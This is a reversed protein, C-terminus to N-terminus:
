IVKSILIYKMKIKGDTSNTSSLVNEEGITGITFCVEGFTSDSCTVVLAFLTLHLIVLKYKRLVVDLVTVNRENSYVPIDNM